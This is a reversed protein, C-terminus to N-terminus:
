QATHIHRYLSGHRCARASKRKCVAPHYDAGRGAPALELRLSFAKM